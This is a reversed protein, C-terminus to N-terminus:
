KKQKCRKKTAMGAFNSFFISNRLRIGLPRSGMRFQEYAMRSHVMGDPNKVFGVNCANRIGVIISYM